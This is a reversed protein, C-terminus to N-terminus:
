GPVWRQTFASCSMHLDPVRPHFKRTGWRWILQQPKIVHCPKVGTHYSRYHGGSSIGSEFKSVINKNINEDHWIEWPWKDNCHRWLSLSLTEFRWGWSQKSFRKNPRLDFYVDFSRTVPKRSEGCLLGTVRFINGNSSTMVCETQFAM